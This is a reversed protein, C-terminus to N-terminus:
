CKNNIQMSSLQPLKNHRLKALFVAPTAVDSGTTTANNIVALSIAAAAAIKMSAM